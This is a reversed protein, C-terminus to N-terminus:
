GEPPEIGAIARIRLVHGHTAFAGDGPLMGTVVEYEDPRVERVSTSAEAVAAILAYAAARRAKRAGSPIEVDVELVGDVDEWRALRIGLEAVTAELHPLLHAEPEEAVWGPHGLTSLLRQVPEAFDSADRVGSGREDTDL